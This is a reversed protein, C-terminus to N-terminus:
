RASFVTAIFPGGTSAAIDLQGDHDLDMVTLWSPAGGVAVTFGVFGGAANNHLVTVTRAAASAVVLDTHGDGDLDTAVVASPQADVAITTAAAFGGAGTGRLVSVSADGQNATVLDLVGDGDLDAAALAIGGSPIPLATLTFSNSGNGLMVTVTAAASGIVALDPNGDGNFDGTVVAQPTGAIPFDPGRGLGGAANSNLLSVGTTNAIAIDTNGDHNFDGFALRHPGAVTGTNTPATFTGDGAGRAIAISNFNVNTVALDVHGDHNLDVAIPFTTGASPNTTLTAGPVLVGAASQLYIFIKGGVPDVVALDPRGDENFDASVTAADGAGAVLAHAGAFGAATGFLVGVSGGVPGSSANAVLLDQLADGNLSAAVAFNAGAGGTLTPTGVPTFARGAGHLLTAYSASVVALDAHGDGDFDGAAVAQPAAALTLTTAGAFAGAPSGFWLTVSTAGTVVALDLNGDGDLDSAIIAGNGATAPALTVPAGFSGGAGGQAVQVAAATTIALDLAGDRDFDGLAIGGPAGSVAVSTLPTFGGAGTGRLVRVTNTAGVVLDPRGDRDVDGIALATAGGPIGVPTGPSFQGNASGILLGITNIDANLVALDAHGDGDFDGAVIATAGSDIPYVAQLLYSGTGNGLLVGVTNNTQNVAALDPIGDGNLDAFALGHTGNGGSAFVPAVAALELECLAGSAAAGDCTSASWTGDQQYQLCDTAATNHVGGHFNTYGFPEGTVWRFNGEVAVDDGGLLPLDGAHVAAFAAADESASTLSPLHGGLATCLAAAEPYSHHIADFAVFCHGSIPDVTARDAGSGSGCSLTCTAECGDGQTTNGDDCEERGERVGNGCVAHTVGITVTAAPSSAQGDSATYTFSDTGAFGATPTYTVTAGVVASLTGHAPPQAIAFSLPDDDADSAVLAIAVPDGDASSAAVDAAIPADNVSTITLAVAATAQAGHGDDITYSFGDAGHYNAGPTYAIRGAIAVATGHLPATVGVITLVDLDVDSDNALVDITAVTDEELTAADDAAIPADNVSAIALALTASATGGNGDSITYTVADAGHYNPAPVYTIHHADAITAAGHAPPTISAIALPDHDADTDNAVVDVTASTDEDLSAADDRAVPADNVSAVDIALEASATGGSGDSITYTLADPGHYDPGPVYTIRHADIAIAFGHAPQTISTITLPDHDADRDNAVVDVTVTGDEDVSAADAVAIPADNVSAVTVAVGATATAGSPDTITYSFADAGHYDAQPTYRVQRADLVAVSGHLPQTVSVIGLPDGDPDTDNAVVDIAAATDEVTALTDDVAVPPRNGAGPNVTVFVTATSTGGHGDSVTYEFSDQGTFAPASTYSVIVGARSATGHAPQTIATVVLTDGDPDTDNATVDISGPQGQVVTLFDHNASPPDNVPRVTVHVVAIATSSHGDSIQYVVSDTGNYNRAGRYSVVGSAITATGHGPGGLITASLRDGDPDSDNALVDVTGTRDEDVALTDDNAVPPHNIDARPYRNRYEIGPLRAAARPRVRPGAAAIPVRHLGGPAAPSRQEVAASSADVRDIGCGMIAVVIACTTTGYVKAFNM